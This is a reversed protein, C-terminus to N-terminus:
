GRRRFAIAAVLGAALVMTSPEPISAIAVTSLGPGGFQSQWVALDAANIDLDENADGTSPTGTGAAGFGQQWILFDAGDVISDGNFDASEAVLSGDDGAIIPAGNDQYAGDLFTMTGPSTSDYQVRIWGYNGSDLVFGVFNDAAPDMWSVLGGEDVALNWLRDAAPTTVANKGRTIEDVGDGISDGFRFPRFYFDGPLDNPDSRQVVYGGNEPNTPPFQHTFGDFVIQGGGVTATRIQFDFFVSIDPENFDIDDDIDFQLSSLNYINGASSNDLGGPIVQGTTATITTPATSTFIAKDILNFTVVAGRADGTILAALALFGSGIYKTTLAMM